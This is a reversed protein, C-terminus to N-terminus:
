VFARTQGLDTWKLNESCLTASSCINTVYVETEEQTENWWDVMNM